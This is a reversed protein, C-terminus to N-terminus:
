NPGKEFRIGDITIDASGDSYQRIKGVYQYLDDSWLKGTKDEWTGKLVLGNYGWYFWKNDRNITVYEYGTRDLYKGIAVRRFEYIRDEEEKEAKKRAEEAEKELRNRLSSMSAIRSNFESKQKDCCEIETYSALCSRYCEAVFEFEAIDSLLRHGQRVLDDLEELTQCNMWERANLAELESLLTDKKPFRFYRDTLTCTPLYTVDNESHREMVMAFATENNKAFVCYDQSQVPVSRRPTWEAQLTGCDVLEQNEQWHFSVTDFSLVLDDLTTQHKPLSIRSPGGDEFGDFYRFVNTSIFSDYFVSDVIGSQLIFPWAEEPLSVRSYQHNDCRKTSIFQWFQRESGARILEKSDEHLILQLAQRHKNLHAYFAENSESGEWNSLAEETLLSYYDCSVLPDLLLNSWTSHYLNRQEIEQARSLQQRYPELVEEALRNLENIAVLCDVNGLSSQWDAYMEKALSEIFPTSQSLHFLVVSPLKDALDLPSASTLLSNLRLGLALSGIYNESIEDIFELGAFQQLESISNFVNVWSATLSLSESSKMCESCNTVSSLLSIEKDLARNFGDYWTDWDQNSLSTLQEITASRAMESIAKEMSGQEPIFDSFERRFSIAEKADGSIVIGRWERMKSDESRTLTLEIDTSKPHVAWSWSSFVDVVLGFLGGVFTGVGINVKEKNSLQSITSVSDSSTYWSYVGVGGLLSGLVGYTGFGNEFQPKRALRIILENYDESRVALTLDSRKVKEKFTFSITGNEGARALIQGDSLRVLRANPANTRISVEQSSGVVALLLLAGTAILKNM